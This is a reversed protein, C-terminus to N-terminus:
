PVLRLPIRVVHIREGNEASSEFVTLTGDEADAVEFRATFDFTGRTGSGSTATEFHHALVRGKAGTLEYEFTAEFTNATGSARLPSTVSEFPLPSEVLIAPTLDEFARRPAGEYGQFQSRTYALQARLARSGAPATTLEIAREQATPGNALEQEAAGPAGVAPVQRAVPAVKGDRLFYVRVTTGVPESRRGGCGVLSALLM